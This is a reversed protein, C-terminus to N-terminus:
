AKNKRFFQWLIYGLCTFCIFGETNSLFSMNQLLLNEHKILSSCISVFSDLLFYTFSVITFFLVFNSREKYNLIVISIMGLISYFIRISINRPIIMITYLYIFLSIYLVIFIACFISYKNKM